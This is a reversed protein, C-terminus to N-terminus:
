FKIWPISARSVECVCMCVHMHTQTQTSFTCSCNCNSNEQKTISIKLKTQKDSSVNLLCESSQILIGNHESRHPRKISNFNGNLACWATFKEVKAEEIAQCTIESFCVYMYIYIYRRWEDLTETDTHLIVQRLILLTPTLLSCKVKHHFEINWSWIRLPFVLFSAWSDKAKNRWYKVLFKKKFLM